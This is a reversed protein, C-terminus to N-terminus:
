LKFKKKLIKLHRLLHWKEKESGVAIALPVKESVENALRDLEGFISHRASGVSKLGFCLEYEYDAHDFVGLFNNLCRLFNQDRESIFFLFIQYPNKAFLVLP